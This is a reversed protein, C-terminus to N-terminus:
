VQRVTKRGWTAGGGGMSPVWIADDPARGLPEREDPQRVCVPLRQKKAFAVDIGVFADRCGNSFPPSM